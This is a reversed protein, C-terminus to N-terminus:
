EAVLAREEIVRRRQIGVHPHLETPGGLAGLADAEPGPTRTGLLRWGIVFAAAM